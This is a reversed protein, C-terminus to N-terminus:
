KTGIWWIRFSWFRRRSSTLSGITAGRGKGAEVLADAPISAKSRSSSPAPLRDCGGLWIIGLLLFLLWRLRVIAIPLLFM